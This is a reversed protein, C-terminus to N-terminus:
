VEVHLVFVTKGDDSRRFVSVDNVEVMDAHNVCVAVGVKKDADLWRTFHETMNHMEQLEEPTPM